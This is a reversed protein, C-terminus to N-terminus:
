LAGDRIAEFIKTRSVGASIAAENPSFGLRPIAHGTMKPQISHM